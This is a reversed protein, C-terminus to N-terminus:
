HAFSQDMEEKTLELTEEIDAVIASDKLKEANMKVDEQFLVQDETDFELTYILFVLQPQPRCLKAAQFLRYRPLGQVLISENSLNKIM